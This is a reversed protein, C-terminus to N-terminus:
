WKKRETLWHRGPDDLDGVVVEGADMIRQESLQVWPESFLPPLSEEVPSPLIRFVMHSKPKLSFRTIKHSKDCRDVAYLSEMASLRYGDAIDRAPDYFGAEPGRRQGQGHRNEPPPIQHYCVEGAQGLHVVHEALQAESGQLGMGLDEKGNGLRKSGGDGLAEEYIRFLGLFGNVRERCADDHVMSVYLLLPDEALAAAGAMDHEGESSASPHPRSSDVMHAVRLKEFLADPGQSALQKHGVLDHQALPVFSEEASAFDGQGSLDGKWDGPDEAGVLDLSPLQGIEVGFERKQVESPSGSGPWTEQRIGLTM